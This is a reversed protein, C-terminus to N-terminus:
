TLLVLHSRVAVESGTLTGVFNAANTTTDDGTGDAIGRALGEDDVVAVLTNGLPSYTVPVATAGATLLQEYETGGASVSVISNIISAQDTIQANTYTRTVSGSIAGAAITVQEGNLLTFM